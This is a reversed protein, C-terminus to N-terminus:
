AATVLSAYEPHRAIYTRVFPCTPIVKRGLSRDRDLAFRTIASAYGRGQLGHPTESHIYEIAEGRLRYTLFAVAGGDHIELRNASTNDIIDPSHTM